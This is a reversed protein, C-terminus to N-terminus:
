TQWKWRSGLTLAGASGQEPVSLTMMVALVTWTSAVTLLDTNLASFCYIGLWWAVGSVSIRPQTMILFLPTYIVFTGLLGLSALYASFGNNVQTIVQFSGFVHGTFSASSGRWGLFGVGLFPHHLFMDVGARSSEVRILESLDANPGPTVLYPSAMVILPLLIALLLSVVRTLDLGTKATWRKLLSMAAALLASALMTIWVSRAFTGIVFLTCLTLLLVKRAGKFQLALYASLAVPMTTMSPEAALSSLRPLSIWGQSGTQRSIDFSTNNRLFDLFRPYHLIQAAFDYIGYALYILLFWFLVAKVYERDDVLKLVTLCVIFHGVVLTRLMTQTFLRDGAQVQMTMQVFVILWLIALYIICASLHTYKLAAAARLDPRASIVISLGAFGSVVIFVGIGFTETNFVSTADLLGCCLVLACLLRWFGRQWEGSLPASRPSDAHGYTM